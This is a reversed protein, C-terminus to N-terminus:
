LCLIPYLRLTRSDALSLPPSANLSHVELPNEKLYLKLTEVAKSEEETLRNGPFDLSRNPAFMFGKKQKAASVSSAITASAASSVEPGSVSAAPLAPAHAAYIMPSLIRM